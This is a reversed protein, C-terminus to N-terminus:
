VSEYSNQLYEKQDVATVRLYVNEALLFLQVLSYCKCATTASKQIFELCDLDYCMILFVLNFYLSKVYKEAWVVWTAWMTFCFKCM